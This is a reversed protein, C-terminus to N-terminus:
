CRMKCRVHRLVIRCLFLVHSGGVDALWKRLGVELQLEESAFRTAAAVVLCNQEATPATPFQWWNFVLPFWVTPNNVLKEVKFTRFTRRSMTENFIIKLLRNITQRSIDNTLLLILLTNILLFKYYSQLIKILFIQYTINLFKWSIGKNCPM